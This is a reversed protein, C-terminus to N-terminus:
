QTAMTVCIFVKINLNEALKNIREIDKAIMPIDEKFNGLGFIKNTKAVLKLIEEMAKGKRNTM